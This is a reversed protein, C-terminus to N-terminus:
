RGMRPVEVHHELSPHHTGQDEAPKEDCQDDGPPLSALGVGQAGGTVGMRHIAAVPCACPDPPPPQKWTTTDIPGLGVHVDLREVADAADVDGGIEHQDAM